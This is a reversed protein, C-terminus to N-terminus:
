FALVWRAGGTQFNNESHDGDDAILDFFHAYFYYFKIHSAASFYTNVGAGASVVADGRGTPINEFDVQILPEAWRIRHALIGYWNYRMRDSDFRGPPELLAQARHGKRYWSGSVMAETRIRTPGIDVSLDAGVAAEDRMVTQEIDITLPDIDTLSKTLDDYQGAYGTLGMQVEAKGSYRAFLRGGVAKNDSLDVISSQRGNSVTLHYGYTWPPRNFRGLIELGLQQRPIAQQLIMSPLVPSILTPTGHDVNWIGWPTLFQGGRVQFADNYRYEMWARELVISGWRVNNLGTVDSADFILTSTREYTGAIGGLGVETGNPMNTFRIEMLARLSETPKADIYLNVNGLVFTTERTGIIERYYSSKPVFMRQIGFDMFGYFQIGEPAEYQASSDDGVAELLLQEAQAAEATELAALRQEFAASQEERLKKEAALQERLLAAEDTTAQPPAVDPEGEAQAGAVVRERRPEASPGAPAGTPKRAQAFSTNPYSFAM